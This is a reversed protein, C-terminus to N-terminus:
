RKAERKMADHARIILCAVMNTMSRREHRALEVLRRRESDTLRFSSQVLKM